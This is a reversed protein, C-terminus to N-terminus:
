WLANGIPAALCGSGAHWGGRTQEWHRPRSLAVQEGVEWLQASGFRLWLFPGPFYLELHERGHPCRQSCAGLQGSLWAWASRQLQASGPTRSGILGLGLELIGALLVSSM